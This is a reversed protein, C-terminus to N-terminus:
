NKVNEKIFHCKRNLLKTRTKSNGGNALKVANLNDCKLERYTDDCRGLEALIESMWILEKTGDLISDLESETTSLAVTGQKKSRWHILDGNRYLLLGSFSKADKTSDWSADTKCRIGKISSARGYQIRYNITGKLYRLIRKLAGLHIMKPFQSFQSLCSLAYTIDPRTAVSLYM